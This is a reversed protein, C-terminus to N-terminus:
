HFRWTVNPYRPKVREIGENIKAVWDYDTQYRHLVLVRLDSLKHAIVIAILLVVFVVKPVGLIWRVRRTLPQEVPKSGQPNRAPALASSLLPASGQM